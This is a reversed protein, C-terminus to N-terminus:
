PQPATALCSDCSEKVRIESVNLDFLPSTTCNLRTNTFKIRWEGGKREKGSIWVYPGEIEMTKNPKAMQQTVRM